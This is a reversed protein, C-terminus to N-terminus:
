AETLTQKLLPRPKRQRGFRFTAGRYEFWYELAKVQNTKHTYSYGSQYLNFIFDEAQPQTIDLTGLRRSIREVAKCHGSVTVPQLGKRVCLFKAFEQM